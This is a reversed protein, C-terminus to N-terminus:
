ILGSMLLKFMTKKKEMKWLSDQSSSRILLKISLASSMVQQLSAVGAM